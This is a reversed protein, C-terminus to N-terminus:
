HRGTLKPVTVVAKNSQCAEVGGIIPEVVYYYTDGNVLNKTDSFSTNSTTGIQSYTGNLSTSRLVNYSNSNQQNSWSLDVRPGTSGASAGAGALNNICSIFLTQKLMILAWSTEYYFQYGYYDNGYWHGDAVGYAPSAQYNVLTQAVGDCPDSGGNTSSLAAYWDISNKPVSSNTTFVGPTQTRLYQIPAISGAVNHLLMGKTFSFLGYMYERPAYYASTSSNCFNDAYYSETHNWRQDFATSSDGLDTNATRGVGDMAMQVLGSPTVAFPGWANSYAFSGRYGYAGQNDNSSFSDPGTGASDTVDQANTIWVNNTDTVIPPITLGVGRQGSIFGIAAWQSTSDDDGQQPGYLWAGGACSGAYGRYSGTSVDCDGGYTSYAYYDLMDQIINKYTQGTIGTPGTVATASPTGAAVLAELFPSTTYIPEGSGDNSYIMQGNSNGDFTFTCPPSKCSSAGSNYYHRGGHGTCAGSDTTQPISGDACSYSATSPDYSFTDTGNTQVTLFNFLRAIGRAVDETYPDTSPGNQLHGNVEFAQVNDANISGYNFCDYASGNVNTCSYNQTDWGGSTATNPNLGNRWMTQHMYWLGKDIAVNVEASVLSPVTANAPISPSNSEQIVYYKASGKQNTTTDTVTVTATWQTGVAASAPYQHTASIDYPNTVAATTTSTGDGFTWQFTFTDSSGVASPVTAGLVITAETTSNIAYTTHPSTPSKPISPVTLVTVALASPAVCLAAFFAAAASSSFHRKM